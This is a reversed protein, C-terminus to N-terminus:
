SSEGLFVVSGTQFDLCWRIKQSILIQVKSIRWSFVYNESLGFTTSFFLWGHYPNSNRTSIFNILRDVEGYWRMIIICMDKVSFKITICGHFNIINDHRKFGICRLTRMILIAKVHIRLSFNSLYEPYLKRIVYRQLIFVNCIVGSFCLPVLYIIISLNIENSCLWKKLM